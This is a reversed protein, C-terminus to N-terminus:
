LRSIVLQLVASHLSYQGGSLLNRTHRLALPPWSPLKLMKTVAFFCRVQEISHAGPVSDMWRCQTSFHLWLGWLCVDWIRSLYFWFLRWPKVGRSTLSLIHKERCLKSSGVSLYAKVRYGCWLRGGCSLCLKWMYFLYSLVLDLRGELCSWQQPPPAWLRILPAVICLRNAPIQALTHRHREM